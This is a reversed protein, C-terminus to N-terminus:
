MAIGYVYLDGQKVCFNWFLQMLEKPSIATLDADFLHKKSWKISEAGLELSREITQNVFYYNKQTREAFINHLSRWSEMDTIYKLRNGDMYCGFVLSPANLLQKFHNFCNVTIYSRLITSNYDGAFVEWNYRLYTKDAM